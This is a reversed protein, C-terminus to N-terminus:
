TLGGVPVRVSSSPQDGACGGALNLSSSIISLGHSPPAASARMLRVASSLFTRRLAAHGTSLVAGASDLLLPVPPLHKAIVLM